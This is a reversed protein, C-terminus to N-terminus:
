RPKSLERVNDPSSMGRVNILPRRYSPDKRERCPTGNLHLDTINEFLPVENASITGSWEMITYRFAIRWEDDRLELRDVYRGGGVWNTHDRNLGQYFFYTETHATKSPIDIECHHNLLYHLTSIQGHEHLETGKDYVDGPNGVLAGADIVADDHYGSLFLDKDFRDIARSIRHICDLIDQRDLMTSLRALRAPSMATLVDNTM